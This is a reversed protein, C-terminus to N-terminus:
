YRRQWLRGPELGNACRDAVNLTFFAHAVQVPETDLAASDLRDAGPLFSNGECCSRAPVRWPPFSLSAFFAPEELEGGHVMGGVRQEQAQRVEHAPAGRQKQRGGGNRTCTRSHAVRRDCACCRACRCLTKVLVTQCGDRPLTLSMQECDLKSEEEGSAPRQTHRGLLEKDELPAQSPGHAF